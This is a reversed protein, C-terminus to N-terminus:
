LLPSPRQTLLLVSQPFERLPTVTVESVEEPLRDGFRVRLMHQVNPSVSTIPLDNMGEDFRAHKALKVQHSEWDYLLINKITRPLYGLFVGKRSNPKLKVPRRGSPRVWVRCGFTHLRTFDDRFGFAM